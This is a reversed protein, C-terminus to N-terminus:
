SQVNHNYCVLSQHFVAHMCPFMYATGETAYWVESIFQPQLNANNVQALLIVIKRAYSVCTVLYALKAAHVHMCHCSSLQLNSKVKAMLANDLYTQTTLTCM